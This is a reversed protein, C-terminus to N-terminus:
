FIAGIQFCLFIPSCCQLSSSFCIKLHFSIFHFILWNFKEKFCKWPIQPRDQNTSLIMIHHILNWIHWLPAHNAPVHCVTQLFQKTDNEICMTCQDSYNAMQHVYHVVAIVAGPLQYLLSLEIVILRNSSSVLIARSPFLKM